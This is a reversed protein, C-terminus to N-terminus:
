CEPDDFRINIYRCAEQLAAKYKGHIGCVHHPYPGYMLKREWKPWDSVEMWMYTGGTVPGDVGKGEGCFLSFDGDIGGFRAITVDGDAIEFRGMCDDTLDPNCSPKALSKPFPGCHWLLEANDNEPHRITLDAFFSASECRSVGAILAQTIAGYIDMECAVPMGKETLNGFAFCPHAGKLYKNAYWCDAAVVTCHQSNSLNRIALEIAAISEARERSISMDKFFESTEQMLKNVEEKEEKLVRNFEAVYEVGDFPIVDIGFKNVLESEDTKLCVFDRPRPGIQAISLNKFAKVACVTRVFNEIQEELRADDLWCNEIYTFPIKERLLGTTTAFLGCQSDTQRYCYGGPPAPDRPAWILVPVKLEKCVRIVAAENGFNAHPIFLADVKKEKFLEVAQDAGGMSYLLGEDNVSTLDVIEVDGLKEFIPFVREKIKLSNEYALEKPPFDFRRTPAYGITIKRFNYM